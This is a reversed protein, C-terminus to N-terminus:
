KLWAIDDFYEYWVNCLFYSSYSTNNTCRETLVGSDVDPVAASCCQLTPGLVPNPRDAATADHTQLRCAAYCQVESCAPWQLVAASGPCSAATDGRATRWEAAAPRSQLTGRETETTCLFQMVKVWKCFWSRARVNTSLCRGELRYLLINIIGGYITEMQYM